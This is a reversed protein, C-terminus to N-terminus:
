FLLALVFGSNFRPCCSVFLFSRLSLRRGRLSVCGEKYKKTKQVSPFLKEIRSPPTLRQPPDARTKTPKLAEKAKEFDTQEVSPKAM